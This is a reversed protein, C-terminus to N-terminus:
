KFTLPSIGIHAGPRIKLPRETKGYYSSYSRGCKYEYVVGSLLDYVLRNIFQFM